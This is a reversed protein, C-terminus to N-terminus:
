RRRVAQAWGGGPLGVPGGTAQFEPHAALFIDVMEELRGLNVIPQDM